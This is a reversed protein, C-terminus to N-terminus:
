QNWTVMCIELFLYSFTPGVHGSDFRSALRSSVSNFDPEFEYWDPRLEDPM